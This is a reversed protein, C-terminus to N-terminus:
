SPERKGKRCRILHEFPLEMGQRKLIKDYRKLMRDTAGWTRLERIANEYGLHITTDFYTVRFSNFGADRMLGFLQDPTWSPWHKIRIDQPGASPSSLWEGHVMIGGPRLIRYFERLAKELQARRPLDCVLENSVIVDVSDEDVETLRRVDSEVVSIRRELGRRRLRTALENLWGTYPGKSSDVAIIRTSIPLKRILPITLEGRGCGAELVTRVRNPGIERVFHGALRDYYRGRAPALDIPRDANIRM